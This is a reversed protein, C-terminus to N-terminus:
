AGGAAQLSKTLSLRSFLAVRECGRRCLAFADLLQDPSFTGYSRVALASDSMRLQSAAAAGDLGAAPGAGDSPQTTLDFHFPFAFSFAAQAAQSPPLLRPAYPLPEVSRRTDLM